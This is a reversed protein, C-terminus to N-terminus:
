KKEQKPAHSDSVGLRYAESKLQFEKFRNIENKLDKQESELQNMKQQQLDFKTSLVAYNWIFGVLVGLIAILTATLSLVSKNWEIPSTEKKPTTMQKAGSWILFRDLKSDTETKPFVRVNTLTNSQAM